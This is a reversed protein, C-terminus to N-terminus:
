QCKSACIGIQICAFDGFCNTLEVCCDRKVCDSCILSPDVSGPVPCLPGTSAVADTGPACADACAGTHAAETCNSLLAFTGAAAPVEAICAQLCASPDFASAGADSASPDGSGGSGGNGAGPTREIQLCASAGLLGAILCSWYSVRM